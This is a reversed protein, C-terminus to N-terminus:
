QVEFTEKQRYKWLFAERTSKEDCILKTKKRNLSLGLDSALDEVVRFDHLVDEVSSGISGDDLYFM